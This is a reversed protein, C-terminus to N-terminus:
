KLNLKITEKKGEIEGIQLSLSKVNTDIPFGLRTYKTSIAQVEVPDNHIDAALRETSNDVILRVYDRTNLSVSKDYNNTIKLNLILFTRGQVATAQQGKVIIQNRLEASQIDYELNSVVKGAANRLPFKFSKNLTEQAQPKNVAIQKDSAISQTANTTSKNIVNSIAFIAIGFVVVIVVIFPLLPSNKFFKKVRKSQFNNHSSSGSLHSVSPNFANPNSFDSFALTNKQKTSFEAAQHNTIFKKM